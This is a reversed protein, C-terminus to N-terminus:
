AAWLAPVSIYQGFGGSTNMGFDFGTVTVQEGASFMQTTSTVVVGAADIGPTHPYKRTVGKNGSASLADKYNLSSYKVEIVLEGAPLDSLARQKIERVFTKEATESVVMAKFTQPLAM